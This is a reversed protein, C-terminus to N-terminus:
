VAARQFLFYDCPVEILEGSPLAQTTVVTTIGQTCPVFGVQHFLTPLEGKQLMAPVIGHALAHQLKVPPAGFREVWSAFQHAADPSLEVLFARGRSGLLTALHHVAPLRDETRLQHLVGRLYLNADGLEAHLARIAPGDLLDIARYEVNTAGHHLRAGRLAEESVDVGIVHSFADALGRTQTGNGCGVDVLPLQLDFIGQFLPLERKVAQDPTADWFAVGPRPTVDRWYGDWSERYSITRNPQELDDRDKQM